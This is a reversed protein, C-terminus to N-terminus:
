SDTAAPPHRYGAAQGRISGQRMRRSPVKRRNTSEHAAFGHRPRVRAEDSPRAGLYRAVSRGPYLAQSNRHPRGSESQPCCGTLSEPSPLAVLSPKTVHHQRPTPCPYLTGTVGLHILTLIASRPEAHRDVTRSVWAVKGASEFGTPGPTGSERQAQGRVM